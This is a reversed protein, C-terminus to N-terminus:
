RVLLVPIGALHVVKTAVSGLLLGAGANLGRTSMVIMDCHYTKSFRAITAAADGIEIHCAHKIHARELIERAPGLTAEGAERLPEELERKDSLTGEGLLLFNVPVPPQVNILLAELPQSLQGALRVTEEVARLAPESGDCPVLFRLM